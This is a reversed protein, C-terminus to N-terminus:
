TLASKKTKKILGPAKRSYVLLRVRDYLSCSSPALTDLADTNLGFDRAYYYALELLIETIQYQTGLAGPLCSSFTNPSFSIDFNEAVSLSIFTDYNIANRNHTQWVPNNSIPSLAPSYYPDVLPQLDRVAKYFLDWFIRHGGKYTTSVPAGQGGIRRIRLEQQGPSGADVDVLYKNKYDVYITCGFMALLAHSAYWSAYYLTVHAWPASSTIMLDLARRYNSAAFFLSREVDRLSCDRYQQFLTMGEKIKLGYRLNNRRFDNFSNQSDGVACSFHSCYYRAEREGFIRM